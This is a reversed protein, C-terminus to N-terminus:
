IKGINAVLRRLSEAVQEDMESRTAASSRYPKGFLEEVTMGMELLQRCIDFTPTRRGTAWMSVTNNSVGLMRALEAQNPIGARKIFDKIRIMAHIYGFASM